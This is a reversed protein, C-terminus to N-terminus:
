RLVYRSPVSTRSWISVDDDFEQFKPLYGFMAAFIISCDLVCCQHAINALSRPNANKTLSSIGIM